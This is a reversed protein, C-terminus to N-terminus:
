RDEEEVRVGKVTSRYRRSLGSYQFFLRPADDWLGASRAPSGARGRAWSSRGANFPYAPAMRYRPASPPSSVEIAPLEVEPAAPKLTPAWAVVALVVAMAMVTLGPAASSAHGDLLSREDVHYIRHKLRPVFDRTLEPEPLTRLLEVGRVVVDYYRRCSPCSTLHDEVERHDEESAMGDLYESLCAVFDSCTM